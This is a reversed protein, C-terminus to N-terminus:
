RRSRKPRSSNTVTSAAYMLAYINSGVVAGAIPGVAYSWDWSQIGLAVAPNIIGNAGLSAVLIGLAYSAGVVFTTKAPDLKQIMAAAAGYTFVATGVGEAIAVRWAFHPGAISTLSHGLFYRILGWAALGGLVQSAIYVVAHPTDIKRMVWMSITVAPNVHAGTISGITLVLVGLTLGGALGSFLPFSTRALMAYFVLSLVGVGLFEAVIMAIKKRGFM